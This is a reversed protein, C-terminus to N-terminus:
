YDYDYCKKRLCKWETGNYLKFCNDDTDYVIMGLQPNEIASEPNPNRTMVLGKDNSQLALFANNINNPWNTETNETTSIGVIGPYTVGTNTNPEKVCPCRQSEVSESYYSCGDSLTIVMKYVAPETDTEPVRYTDSTASEILIDNKYWKISGTYNTALLKLLTSGTDGTCVKEFRKYDVELPLIPPSSFGSYYGGFGADGNAGFIQVQITGLSTIKLDGGYDASGVNYVYVSWNPNGKVELPGTTLPVNRIGDSTVIPKFSEGNRALISLKSSTYRLNGIRNADPILDIENQGNCSVPPIFIFSPTTHNDAGYVKQYVYINKDSLIRMVGNKYGVSGKVNIFDGINELIADPKPLDYNSDSFSYNPDSIKDNFYLKTNPETAIIMARERDGSGNGQMLIYENGLLDVPTIQDFAIDGNASASGQILVSGVTVFIDKSSRIQTGIWGKKQIASTGQHNVNLIYSEGKNLTFTIESGPTYETSGSYFKIGSEYGSITVLTNDEKAMMTAFSAFINDSRNIEHELGGWLFFQGKAIQGKALVSGAQNESRARYNVYFSKNSKLLLGVKDAMLVMGSNSKDIAIPTKSGALLTTGSNSFFLKAPTSNNITVHGDTVIDKITSKGYTVVMRPITVEDPLTIKIDINEQSDTSLYIFEEKVYTAITPSTFPQLYHISDLQAYSFQYVFFTLISLLQKM